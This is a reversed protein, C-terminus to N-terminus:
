MLKKHDTTGDPNTSVSMITRGAALEQMALAFLTVAHAIAKSPGFGALRLAHLAAKTDPDVYIRMRGLEKNSYLEGM